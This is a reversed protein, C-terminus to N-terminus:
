LFHLESRGQVQIESTLGSHHASRALEYHTSRLMRQSPSSMLRPYQLKWLVLCCSKLEQMKWNCKKFFKYENQVYSEASTPAPTARARRISLLCGRTCNSQHARRSLHARSPTGSCMGMFRRRLLRARAQSRARSCLPTQAPTRACTGSGAAAESCPLSWLLSPCNWAFAPLADQCDTEPNHLWKSTKLLTSSKACRKQYKSPLPFHCRDTREWVQPRRYEMTLRASNEYAKKKQSVNRGIPM